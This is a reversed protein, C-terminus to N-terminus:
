TLQEKILKSAMAGDFQGEYKAKLDQIVTGMKPLVGPVGVSRLEIIEQIIPKLQAESLQKPLFSEFLEIEAWAADCRDGDRYDGAIRNVEHANKIFKKLMSVVEQDTPARNGNNKGVAEAEGILTSLSAATASRRAKRAALQAEKITDLLAM